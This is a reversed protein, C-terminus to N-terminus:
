EMDPIPTIIYRQGYQDKIYTSTKSSVTINDHEIITDNVSERVAVIYSCNATSDICGNCDYERGHLWVKQIAM